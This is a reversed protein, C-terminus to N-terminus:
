PKIDVCNAVGFSFLDNTMYIAASKINNQLGIAFKCTNCVYMHIRFPGGGCQSCNCVTCVTCSIALNCQSSDNNSSILKELKNLYETLVRVYIALSNSKM